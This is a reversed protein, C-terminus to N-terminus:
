PSSSLVPADAGSALTVWTSLVGTARGLYDIEVTRGPADGYLSTELDASSHVKDGEVAVIVDGAVLGAQAAPSGPVVADLVAGGSNSTSGSAPIPQTATTTTIAVPRAM